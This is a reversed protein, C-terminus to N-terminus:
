TTAPQTRSSVSTSADGTPGTRRAAARQAASLILELIVALGIVLLAGGLMQAYDRSSLGLFLYRGLGLDSMYAALTATAVVQLTAARLGGIIVPLALPIEVGGIVQGTSMGIARAAQPIAPDIAQVGAYAGALLSPIALVVLALLPATIGIGLALGFLTLLGLTPIARAAGTLAGVLGAGKRTHGILIGVPLAIVAAILVSVVTILLHQGVRVPIGAPGSWNAPDALWAFAAAFLSM